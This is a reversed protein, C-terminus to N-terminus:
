LWARLEWLLPFFHVRTRGRLYPAGSSGGTGSKTGIQREVMQVHRMRWLAATEDHTLLDEALEWLDDHSGRDRAVALLSEMIEEDSVALGRQSLATLYADWLTPEALRRGLRAIEADSAGRVRGLYAPDKIGSIFEIERFQVSQFGSAPALVSRFELFDQPTMTELVQVQDVLVREVAHIRRFLHRARWLAGEMMADRARELEHLLLKFWLEYVQHVTIFLLEDDSGSQPDQQALLDSLHLYAGYSLRGGDEGFSRPPPLADGTGARRHPTAAM